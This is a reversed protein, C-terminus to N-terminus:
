WTVQRNQIESEENTFHFYYQYIGQLSHHYICSIIWTFYQTCQGEWTVEHYTNEVQILLSSFQM